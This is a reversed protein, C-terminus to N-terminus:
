KAHHDESKKLESKKPQGPPQTQPEEYTVNVDGQVGQINPSSSSASSQQPHDNQQVFSTQSPSSSLTTPQQPQSGVGHYALGLGGLLAVGAALLATPLIWHREDRRKVHALLGFLLFLTYGTLGLPHILVKTWEISPNAM